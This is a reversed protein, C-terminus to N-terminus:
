EVYLLLSKLYEGEPHYLSTPHDIAHLHRHLIKVNRGAEQAAQFLLNQFLKDDVHYSCSSSLLLGQSPMKELVGRNIEKYGSCAAPIDGKKKAFAPPDLIVVDYELSSEKLFHFVDEQIIRHSSESFNNLLTNRRALDCARKCIDVSVVEKAGGQLASLSFGASYSFCNLVRAEKCYTSLLKRMERQDLFFGTKQGDTLSVLFKIGNEIIEVENCEEGFLVGESDELGETKRSFSTSKEYIIRPSLLKCLLDVLYGKWRQMGFTSIQMVLVDAYCDIVLGPLGDGESNVLRYANTTALFKKRLAISRQLKDEIVKEIPEKTFSLVRGSLSNSPHFYANCLFTNCSSYVPLVEGPEIEPISAIAGSFIWPHRRLLSKEKGEKLVVRKDM